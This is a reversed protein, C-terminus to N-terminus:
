RVPPRCRVWGTKLMTQWAHIANQRLMRRSTKPVPPYPPKWQFTRVEVWKAHTSMSTPRFQCLQVTEDGDEVATTQILTPDSGAVEPETMSFCSRATGELLPKLFHERQYDTAFHYLTHMNGEDPAQANIIYPGMPVKAAEASVAALATVGLGM